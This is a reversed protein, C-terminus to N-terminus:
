RTALYVIGTVVGSLVIWLLQYWYFFPIGFLEPGSKAYLAPFLTALFPVVLLWYFRRRALRSRESGAMDAAVNSPM